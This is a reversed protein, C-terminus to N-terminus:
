TPSWSATVRFGPRDQVVPVAGVAARVLAALEARRYGRLVSLVGDHRSM